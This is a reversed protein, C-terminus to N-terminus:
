EGAEGREILDAIDYASFVAFQGGAVGRMWAVIRAREQAAGDALGSGYCGCCADGCDTCIVVQGREDELGRACEGSLLRRAAEAAERTPCRAVTRVLRRGDAASPPQDDVVDWSLSVEADVVYYSM